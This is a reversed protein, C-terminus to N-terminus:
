RLVARTSIHSYSSGDINYFAFIGASSRDGYDGGRRFWPSRSNPYYSYDDNWGKTENTADGLHEIFNEYEYIDYYKIDVGSIQSIPINSGLSSEMVGMVYENAGGSM